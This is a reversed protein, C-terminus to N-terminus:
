IAEATHAQARRRRLRYQHVPNADLRDRLWAYLADETVVRVRQGGRTEWTMPMGSRRWRKITRTSRRVARAAEPYTLTSM